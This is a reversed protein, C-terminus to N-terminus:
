ANWSSTDVTPNRRICKEFRGNEGPYLLFLGVYWDFMVKFGAAFQRLCDVENLVDILEDPEKIGQSHSPLTTKFHKYASYNGAARAERAALLEWRYKKYWRELLRIGWCKM